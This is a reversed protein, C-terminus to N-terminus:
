GKSKVREREKGMLRLGKGKIRAMVLVLVFTALFNTILAANLTDSIAIKGVAHGRLQADPIRSSGTPRCRPPRRWQRPLPAQPFSAVVPRPGRLARTVAKSSDSTTTSLPVITKVNFATTLPFSCLTFTFTFSPTTEYASNEANL